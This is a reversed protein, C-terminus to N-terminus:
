RRIMNMGFPFDYTSLRNKSKDEDSDASGFQAKWKLIGREEDTGVVILSCLNIFM